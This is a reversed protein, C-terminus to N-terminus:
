RVKASYQFILLNYCVTCTNAIIYLFVHVSYLSVQIDYTTIAKLCVMKRNQVAKFKYKHNIIYFLYFSM